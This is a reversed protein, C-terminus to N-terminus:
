GSECQFEEGEILYFINRWGQFGGPVADDIYYQVWPKPSPELTEPVPTGEPTLPRMENPIKDIALLKIGNEMFWTVAMDLYAKDGFGHNRRCTWLLIQWGRRVLEKLVPVALPM